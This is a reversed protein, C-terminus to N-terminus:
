SDLRQRGWYWLVLLCVIVVHRESLPSLGELLLVLYRAAMSGEYKIGNIGQVQCLGTILLISVEGGFYYM